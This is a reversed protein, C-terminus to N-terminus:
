TTDRENNLPLGHGKFNNANNSNSHLGVRKHRDADAQTRALEDTDPLTRGCGPMDTHECTNQKGIILLGSADLHVKLMSDPRM